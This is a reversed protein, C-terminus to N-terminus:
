SLPGLSSKHIVGSSNVVLYLDGTVFAPIGPITTTHNATGLVISDQATSVAGAGTHDTGIAVGGAGSALARYGLTTIFYVQTASGQGSQFGVVTQGEGTTTVNAVTATVGSQSGVFVSSGGSTVAAGAQYGLAAVDSANSQNLALYGVGTNNSANTMVALVGYGVATSTGGTTLANLAVYGVATNGSTTVHQLVGQGVATNNNATVAVQLANNGVATNNSGTTLAAGAAGGVATNLTGSTIAALTTSGFATNTEANTWFSPLAGLGYVTSATNAGQMIGPADFTTGPGPNFTSLGEMDAAFVSVKTPTSAGGFDNWTYQTAATQATGGIICQPRIFALLNLAGARSASQVFGGATGSLNVSAYPHVNVDNGSNVTTHNGVTLFGGGTYSQLGFTTGLLCNTRVFAYHNGDHGYVLVNKWVYSMVGLDPLGGDLATSTANVGHGTTALGATFLIGFDELDVKIGSGVIDIADTAAVTMELITGTLGTPESPNSGGSVPGYTAAVGDGQLKCPVSIQPAFNLKYHGKFFIRQGTTVAALATTWNASDTTVNGTANPVVVGPQEAASLAPTTGGHSFGSV